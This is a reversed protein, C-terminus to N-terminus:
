RFFLCKVLAAAAPPLVVLMLLHGLGTGWLMGSRMMDGMM